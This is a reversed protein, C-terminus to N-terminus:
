DKKGDKFVLAGGLIEATFALSFLMVVGIQLATAKLLAKVYRKWGDRDFTNWADAISLVGGGLVSPTRKGGFSRDFPVIAEDEEPLMSAAVRIFIVRAPFSALWSVFAAISTIGAANGYADPSAGDGNRVLDLENIGHFLRIVFLTGFFAGNVLLHEFAAAPVIKSLSRFSPIRSYFRKPSPESIVIHVWAVQLNALLVAVTMQVIFRGIISSSSVPALSSLFSEAIACTLFMSFGRFRSLRGARARLHRITTRLKSTIPKPAPTEVEMESDIPDGPPKSATDNDVRLYLDPNSDEVVALTPVLLSYTYEISFLIFFLALVTVVLLGALWSSGVEIKTAAGGEKMTEIGRRALHSVTM